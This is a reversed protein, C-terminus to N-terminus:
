FSLTLQLGMGGSPGSAIGTSVPVMVPQVNLSLDDSVDYDFFHADVSADILNLVYVGILIIYSFDRNRKYYEKKSKLANTFWQEKSPDSLVEDVTYRTKKLIVEEYSTNAPDRIIFDRYANKYLNYNETNFHIYYVSAAIGGYLIPVKWYKKNYIQGLGPLIASYLTAKHPSHKKVIVENAPDETLVPQNLVVLTDNDAQAYVDRANILLTIVLAFFGITNLSKRMM